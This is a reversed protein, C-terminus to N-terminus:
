QSAPKPKGPIDPHDIRAADATLQGFTAKRGDPAIVATDQTRLTAAPVRWRRAAATVLRARAAAALNRAPDYLTRVSSSGGTYQSGGDTRADALPVDVDALRADLEEAILMAVATTIGQGVEVRPLRVVVRNAATVELVLKEDDTGTVVPVLADTRAEAVREGGLPAVLILTSASLAQVIVKRRTTVACGGFPRLM